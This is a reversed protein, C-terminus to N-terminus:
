RENIVLHQVNNINKIAVQTAERRVKKRMDNHWKVGETYINIEQSQWLLNNCVPHSLVVASSQTM